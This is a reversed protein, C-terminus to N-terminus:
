YRYEQYIKQGYRDEKTMLFAVIEGNSFPAIVINEFTSLSATMSVKKTKQLLKFHGNLMEM